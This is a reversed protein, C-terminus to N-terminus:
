GVGVRECGLMIDTYGSSNEGVDCWLTRNQWIVWFDVFGCFLSELIKKCRHGWKM